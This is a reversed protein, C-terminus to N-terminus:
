SIVLISSTRWDLLRTTEVINWEKVHKLSIVSRHDKKAWIKLPTAWGGNAKNMTWVVAYTISCGSSSNGMFSPWCPFWGIKKGLFNTGPSLYVQLNSIRGWFIINLQTRWPAILPPTAVVIASRQSDPRSDKAVQGRSGVWHPALKILDDFPLQFIGFCLDKPLYVIYQPLWPSPYSWWTNWPFIHPIILSGFTSRPPCRALDDM